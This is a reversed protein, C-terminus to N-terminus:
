ASVPKKILACGKECYAMSQMLGPFDSKWRQLIETETDRMADDLFVVAGQALKPFLAPGAPYRALPGTTEPPGDIVLMDIELPAPLGTLAYWDWSKGDLTM